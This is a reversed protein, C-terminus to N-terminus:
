QACSVISLPLYYGNAGVFGLQSLHIDGFEMVGFELDGYKELIQTGDFSQRFKKQTFRVDQTSAQARYRSNLLTVHLNVNERGFEGKKM